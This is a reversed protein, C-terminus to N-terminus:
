LNYMENVISSRSSLTCCFPKFNYKKYISVLDKTFSLISEPSLVRRRSWLSGPRPFFITYDSVIGEKALKLVGEILGGLPESGLVFNTRVRGKGFIRVSYKLADIIRDYGYLRDKGPCVEKFIKKNFCELNFCM